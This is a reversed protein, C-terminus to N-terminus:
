FMCWFMGRQDCPRAFNRRCVLVMKDGIVYDRRGGFRTPHHNVKLPEWGFSSSGKVVHNQYIVQSVLVM